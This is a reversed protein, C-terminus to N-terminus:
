ACRHRSVSKFLLREKHKYTASSHEDWTVEVLAASPPSTLCPPPVGGLLRDRELNESNLTSPLLSAHNAPSHPLRTELQRQRKSQHSLLLKRRSSRTRDSDLCFQECSNLVRHGGGPLRKVGHSAPLLEGKYSHM